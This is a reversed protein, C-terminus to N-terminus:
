SIFIGVVAAPMDRLLSCGSGGVIFAQTSPPGSSSESTSFGTGSGPGASTSTRTSAIATQAVSISIMRCPTGAIISPPSGNLLPKVGPWSYIPVITFSQGVTSSNWTPSRTVTSTCEPHPRHWRQRSPM